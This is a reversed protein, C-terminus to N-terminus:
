FPLPTEDEAENNDLFEKGSVKKPEATAKRADAEKVLDDDTYEVKNETAEAFGLGDIWRSCIFPGKNLFAPAADDAIFEVKDNKKAKLVNSIVNYSKGDREQVDVVIQAKLGVTKGLDIGESAKELSVGLWGNLFQFLNSKENIVNRYPLTRLYHKTDDDVVQFVFQFKPELEDSKYKKFERKTLGVCVASYAGTELLEFESSGTAASTMFENNQEAM